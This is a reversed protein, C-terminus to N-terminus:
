GPASHVVDRIRKVWHDLTMKEYISGDDWAGEFQTAWEELKAGTVERWDDVIAVPFGDTQLALARQNLFHTQHLKPDKRYIGHREDYEDRLANM